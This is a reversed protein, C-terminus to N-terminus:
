PGRVSLREKCHPCFEPMTGHGEPEYVRKCHPCAFGLTTLRQDCKPCPVRGDANLQEKTQKLSTNFEHGCDPNRCIWFIGEPLDEGDDRPATLWRVFLVGSVGLLALAVVLKINQGSM